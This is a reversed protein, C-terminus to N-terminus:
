SQAATVQSASERGGKAMCIRCITPAVGRTSEPGDLKNIRQGMKNNRTGIFAFNLPLTKVPLSHLFPSVSRSSAINSQQISISDSFFCLMILRGIQGLVTMNAVLLHSWFCLAAVFQHLVYDNRTLLRRSKAFVTHLQSFADIFCYHACFTSM